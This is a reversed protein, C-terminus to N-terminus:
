MLWFAGEGTAPGTIGATVGGIAGSILASKAADKLSGGQLLTTIGSGAAAGYIPGLAFSLAIPLVVPAVKKVVNKIKKFLKKFFFEPQGTVPNISNLENGVIYREPELGMDHMQQYIMSKMRPNAELVELPIVTEGEAAHVIYTDGERGFDALMRAASQMTEVGGVPIVPQTQVDYPLTAIGQM